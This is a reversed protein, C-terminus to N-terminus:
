FMAVQRIIPLRNGAMVAHGRDLPHLSDNATFYDRKYEAGVQGIRYDAADDVLGKCGWLSIANARITDNLTKVKADVGVFYGENTHDAPLITCAITSYGAAQWTAHITALATAVQAATSNALGFDNIGAYVIMVNKMGSQYNASARSAANTAMNGATQGSIGLNTMKWQPGLGDRVQAFWSFSNIDSANSGLTISDGEAVFNITQAVIRELSYSLISSVTGTQAWALLGSKGTSQLTAESDTVSTTSYDALIKLSSDRVKLALTTVGGTTTKKLSFRVNADTTGINFASGIYTLGDIAGVARKAWQCTLTTGNFTVQLSYYGPGNSSTGGGPAYAMIPMFAGGGIGTLDVHVHLIQDGVLGYPDLVMNTRWVASTGGTAGIPKLVTSSIQWTSATFDTWGNGPSTSNARDFGDAVLLLDNPPVIQVPAAIIPVTVIM